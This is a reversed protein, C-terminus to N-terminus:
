LRRLERLIETVVQEPAVDQLDHPGEIAVQRSHASLRLWYCAFATPIRQFHCLQPKRANANSVAGPGYVEGTLGVSYVGALATAM